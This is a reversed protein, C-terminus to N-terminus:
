SARGGERSAESTVYDKDALVVGKTVRKARRLGITAALVGEGGSLVGEGGLRGLGVLLLRKEETAVHVVVVVVHVNRRILAAGHRVGGVRVEGEVVGM